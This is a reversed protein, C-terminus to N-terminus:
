PELNKEIWSLFSTVKTYIGPRGIACDNTGYSVIGILYWPEQAGDRERYAL